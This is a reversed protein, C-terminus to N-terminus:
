KGALTAAPRVETGNAGTLTDGLEARMQDAFKTLKAVIEPNAAARDTTEGMDATLDYLAAKEVKASKYNSPIGGTPRTVGAISRYTHPFVLKWRGDTVSQLENKAYWTAYAAHPNKADPAGSLIPWVDLGDIKREPLKTGALAAVTPLVDITMAITDTKTGAPIKGPWRVVCPVRTGGDWSTGKGERLPGASGAHDGYSLWPGNDSTFIVLTNDDVGARKLASLVEGVSWDIEQIVDGFLGAGSKGAFKDSVFLPVHPMSHALYFFFPRDKNREIFAVARETYRTTLQRQDDPTVEADSVKDGEILPLKPYRGPEAQPHHPWMDNSYPLGLYEDFGQALPMWEPRDGLHWKGSMGTAYGRQKLVEAITMEAPQLGTKAGPGLAGHIGVRNHYCGTILASRSASCVASSVHFNTLCRGEAAMRDLNPTAFGKQGFPGIDAYGLDDCFIIVVNPPRDAAHLNLAALLLLLFMKVRSAHWVTAASTLARVHPPVRREARTEGPTRRFFRVGATRRLLAARLPVSWWNAWEDTRRAKVLADDGPM